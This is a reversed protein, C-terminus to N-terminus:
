YRCVIDAFLSKDFFLVVSEAPSAAMGASWVGTQPFLMNIAETLGHLSAMLFGHFSIYSRFLM